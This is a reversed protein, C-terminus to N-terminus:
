EDDGWILKNFQNTTVMAQQKKAPKTAPKNAPVSTPPRPDKPGEPQTTNDVQQNDVQQTDGVMNRNMREFVLHPSNPNDEQVLTDRIKGYLDRLKGLSPTKDTM